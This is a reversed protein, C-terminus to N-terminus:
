IFDIIEIEHIKHLLKFDFVDSREKGLLKKALPSQSSITIVSQTATGLTYGGGLAIIWYHKTEGDFLLTVLADIQVSNADALSKIEMEEIFSTIALLDKLRAQQAGALYSSELGRTDYKNEPKADPHTAGEGANKVSKELILQEERLLKLLAKKLDKKKQITDL